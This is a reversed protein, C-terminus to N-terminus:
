QEAGIKVKKRYFVFNAKATQHTTYTQMSYHSMKVLEDHNSSLILRENCEEVDGMM